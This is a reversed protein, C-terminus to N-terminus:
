AEHYPNGFFARMRGELFKDFKTSLNLTARSVFLGFLRFMEKATTFILSLRNKPGCSVCATYVTHSTDNKEFVDNPMRSLGRVDLMETFHTYPAIYGHTYQVM